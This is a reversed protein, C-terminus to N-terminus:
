KYPDAADRLGDGLFNFALVTIVVSFLPWLLWPYLAINQIKQADKLLVGWSVIPDRLGLGLFSLGTEGIIMRPIALTLEVIIYSLFGPVLHAFIIRLMGAGSVKAAMVYDEERLSIFKSRVRRAIGTWGIFSLIITIFLYVRLPPINPPIAASLAMWLPITPFSRIVEIIRQIIVDVVGGVLGSIGGILIGLFLSIIVGILGISLSIRSGYVILSFLDRGLRDTGLPFLPGNGKTGFLHLDSEFIGWMRYGEGQVFISIPYIESTNETFIKRNTVPDRHSTLGYVFPQLHFKGDADVWHIKSPPCNTYNKNFNQGGRLSFFEAFSGLLVFFGLVILSIRALLHKRFKRWMLSWQSSLYYDEALKQDQRPSPKSIKKFFISAIDPKM